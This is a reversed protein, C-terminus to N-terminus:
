IGWQPNDIIETSKKFAFFIYDMSLIWIVHVFERLIMFVIFVGLLISIKLNFKKVFVGFQGISKCERKVAM